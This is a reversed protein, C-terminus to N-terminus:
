RYYFVWGVEGGGEVECLGAGGVGETGDVGGGGGGGDGPSDGPVEPGGNEEGV